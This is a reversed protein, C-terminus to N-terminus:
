EEWVNGEGFLLELEVRLQEEGSVHHESQIVQEEGTATVVHLYLLRDGPWRQVVERLQELEVETFVRVHIPTRVESQPNRIQEAEGDAFESNRFGFDSIDKLSVIREALVKVQQEQVDVRGHILVLADKKLLYHAGEYIKPFVIVECTGTLDELTLFAMAQGNRTTTRKLSTIIGGVSVEAGDRLEGLQDLSVTVARRLLDRWQNLPHDSIYLGLMEKEMALLEERRFEEVALALPPSPPSGPSDFLGVQGSIRTRQHKQSIELIEDLHQLLGARPLGLSDFAGAKILSEIVRKNVVRSDLRACFDVLSTFPGGAERAAIIAEVAQIGVNKVASLGFRIADGVITFDVGSENIDPPLVRIGMRQCEAVLVAVKETNGSETSLVATMYELPYNAKLYATYYAILGYTAAHARNFGYRAFPEFLEFIKQAEKRSIGNQQCGRLFKERQEELLDRVKKGIAYRLVDAEAMTFGALAQAVAMVDEQYVLVGYTEKLVPELKPHPYTVPELGHKRRIYAPINQMPGPRFLAVMAMIDQIRSPRLDQLYRRMGAGELQFLGTTNGSSLLEYTKADDLPIQRLDIEIGRTKQIIKIATDLTTLNTLGLFDMKLLGIKEVSNMDYQTMVLDGKTARQLPVYETLPDRSIVVGAAHTSAHRAVGELKHALDLLKRIQPSEEAARRLEPEHDLAERITAQPPILKAIRDVEGYPLGMVRGVDRVAARAGMTGFTIIQAVHDAGYKSMVYRIVEDRRSDMFDVDIDPMTYRELNLFRDFPLKYYIPDVDTVGCAYLVLSGAASGRVTTLIGQRRAFNVFDQVILFYPAYGMRSIVNLEYELRERLEPTIRGYIRRIGEECLLRLYSEATHGEPIPFHPLKITGLDLDIRVREAIALTNELAEPLERFLVAMEEATKLYFEPIEGMRPKNKDQLSIGMQICMLVDQAEAEEPFVYHVDNTAVVPIRLERSLQLLGQVVKHEEELGHNMVELFFNGKGFIEQFRMAARRAAEMDNRLLARPIEAQLCGSLGILGRSHRSLLEVDIRPKYYFGELHAATTLKILNRYGEADYALLTLHYPNSDVKPDRDSMQRPAVYVEVGLIPNIGYERAKLYFEIAGYMAGHDTVAVAPMKLEAVRRMLPEIRSCGDLLSYETHVHLHVFPDM